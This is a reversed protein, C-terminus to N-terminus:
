SSLVHCAGTCGCGWHLTVKVLMCLQKQSLRLNQQADKDLKGTWFDQPKLLATPEPYHLVVLSGHAGETLQALPPKLCITATPPM